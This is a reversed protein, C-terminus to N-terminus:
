VLLSFVYYSLCLSCDEQGVTKRVEGRELHLLLKKLGDMRRM